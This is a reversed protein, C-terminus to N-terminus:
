FRVKASTITGYPSFEKRLQEDGIGDDLNKVYLNVGQFCVLVAVKQMWWLHYKSVVKTIFVYMYIVDDLMM